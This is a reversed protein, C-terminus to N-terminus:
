RQVMHGYKGKIFKDPDLDPNELKRGNGGEGRKRREVEMWNKLALKLNKCKRRGGFWYDRCGKLAVDDLVDHWDHSFEDWWWKEVKGMVFGGVSVTVTDQNEEATESEAAEDTRGCSDPTPERPVEIEAGYTKKKPEKEDTTATPTEGKPALPTVAEFVCETDSVFVPEFVFVPCKNADALMQKCKSVDPPLIESGNDKPGPWKSEKARPKNHKRDRKGPSVGQALIQRGQPAIESARCWSSFHELRASSLITLVPKLGHLCFGM